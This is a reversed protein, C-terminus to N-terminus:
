DKLYAAKGGLTEPDTLDLGRKSHTLPRYGLSPDKSVYNGGETMKGKAKVMDDYTVKGGLRGLSDRLRALAGGMSAKVNAVSAPSTAVGPEKRPPSVPIGVKNALAASRELVPVGTKQEVAKIGEYFPAALATLPVDYSQAYRNLPVMQEKPVEVGTGGRGQRILETETFADGADGGTRAKITSYLEDLTPM